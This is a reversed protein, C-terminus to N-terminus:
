QREGVKIYSFDTAYGTGGASILGLKASATADLM